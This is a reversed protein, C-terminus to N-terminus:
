QSIKNLLKKYSYLVNERGETGCRGAGSGSLGIWYM